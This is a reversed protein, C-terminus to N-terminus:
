KPFIQLFYRWFLLKGCNKIYIILLLIKATKGIFQQDDKNEWDSQRAEARRLSRVQRDSRGQDATARWVVGGGAEGGDGADDTRGVKEADGGVRLVLRLLRQAVQAEAADAQGSAVRQGAM